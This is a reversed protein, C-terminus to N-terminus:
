VRKYQHDLLFLFDQAYDKQDKKSYEFFSRKKQDLSCLIQKINKYLEDQSLDLNNVFVGMISPGQSEPSDSIGFASPLFIAKAGNLLCLRRFKRTQNSKLCFTNPLYCLVGINQHAYKKKLYSKEQNM